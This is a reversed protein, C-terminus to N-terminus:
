FLEKHESSAMKQEILNLRRELLDNQSVCLDNRKANLTNQGALENQIQKLKLEFNTELKSLLHDTRQKQFELESVLDNARDHFKLNVQTQKSKEENILKLFESRRTNGSDIILAMLKEELQQIKIATVDDHQEPAVKIKFRECLVRRKGSISIDHWKGISESSMIIANPKNGDSRPFGIQWNSYGSADADGIWKFIKTGVINRAGLWIDYGFPKVFSEFIYDQEDKSYIHVLRGNQEKCVAVAEEFSKWERVM